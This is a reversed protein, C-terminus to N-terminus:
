ELTWLILNEQDKIYIRGGALVPHAYTQTQSVKYSATQKFEKPNPEFVVLDGTPSLFMLVSGADVIAGFGGRDYQTQGRWGLTGDSANLCFLYGNDTLGYLFGQHLVPTNYKASVEKNEWLSRASFGEGQKEVRVAFTGRQAGSYIVTQGDVIPSVSNYSRELPLFPLEWLLEGDGLALGVLKKDTFAVVQRSGEVTLLVPSAYAPGEQTWQWRPQGSNLDYAIVGGNEEKGLQVIAMGEAILPSVATYFRVVAGSYPDTRWLLKGDEANLCSVVGGVGLTVVKGEGVAPSSRPGPFRGPAGTVAAAEYRNSWIEKGTQADLCLIVEENGQRTFLYLRQGVLAPTAVGQGVPVSWQQKLEAPWQSPASFDQVRGDRGPGRWQPWDAAFVGSVLVSALGTFFFLSLIGKKM